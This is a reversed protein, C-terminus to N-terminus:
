LNTHYLLVEAGDSLGDTDTDANLPNTKSQFVQQESLSEMPIRITRIRASRYKRIIQWGMGM